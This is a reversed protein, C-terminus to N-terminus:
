DKIEKALGKVKARLEETADRIQNTDYIVRPTMLVILETRGTSYSRAGFLGGLVPIRHLVPIGASSITRSEQIVGAIAVTDGDEVTVQTSVSRHSFSPSQIAASAAPAVPASVDQNIFLTVVGSPNVRAMINLTIGSSRNQVTSTFLSNGGSQATSLGQSALTPVEDGVNLMAPISDTAIISPASLVKAKRNDAAMTLYAMLERSQGVLMGSSLATSVGSFAGKFQRGVANDGTSSAGRQQLFAQVGSSLADSLTVEYIKAEILVQRPSVDLDKLLKLVQEYEQPTAQILLTNDMPNPVVRPGRAGGGAAGPALYSGTQDLTAAAAATAAPTTAVGTYVPAPGSIPPLLNNSYGGYGGGMGGYMGGMGGGMGGYGGGMGGYGGAMGGGMGGYMGGMGGMGGYMGGMGGYMGGMGGYMGGMGGYMGMMGMSNGTYLSMIAMALMEARGYKVRYVYNNTSGAAQTVTVDLKKIWREVDDFIGPNPAVALISNIRDLPQIKVAGGKEGLSIAKFLKELEKAIESPRGNKVEFLRVRQSAFTESDFLSILEMTRRMNRGNDLLILLNAAEHSVMTAGEGIFPELLKSLDTVTSYRLFVLNLLMQEEEAPKKQNVEPSIPLRAVLKMPVIRYVEGVKVMAAGNIRLVTDLLKRVDMEKAEGYTNITVSGSKLTPDFIYNIKLIRALTDVVETLSANHLNLFSGVSAPAAPAAPATSAAAPKAQAPVPAPAPQAPAPLPQAVGGFGPPVGRNPVVQAAPAAVLATWVMAIASFTPIRIM